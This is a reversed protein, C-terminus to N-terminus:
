NIEEIWKQIAERAPEVVEKGARFAMKWRNDKREYVPNVFVRKGNKTVLEASFDIDKTADMFELLRKKIYLLHNSPYKIEWAAIQAAYNEKFNKVLAPYNKEYSVHHKNNPDEADKLNKHAAVLNKEFIPKMSADAKKVAAEMDAIFQKANKIAEAKVEQPTKAITEKPKYSQKMADYQKLFATSNVHKKTYNLLDIVVAKRNGTLINKANKVGYMDVSGDLIGGTIKEDAGPKSIGLQKLFDDTLKVASFSSLLLVTIFFSSILCTLKLAWNRSLLHKM